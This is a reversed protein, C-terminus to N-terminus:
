GRVKYGGGEKKWKMNGKGGEEVKYRGGEEKRKM